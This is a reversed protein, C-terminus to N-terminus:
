QARRSAKAVLSPGAADGSSRSVRRSPAAGSSARAIFSTTVVAEGGRRSKSAVMKDLLRFAEQGMADRPIRVTSLTPQSYSAMAIDDCGIISVDGPVSLGMRAAMGLAGIATLDNGCFIATPARKMSLLVQAGNAGSEPGGDGEIATALKMGCEAIAEQLAEFYRMASVVRQPGHVIGVETHGMQYLHDVAMAVGASNDVSLGGRFLGAKPSDLLVVPVEAQLLQDILQGDLQSTMV